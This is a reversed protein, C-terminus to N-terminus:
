MGEPKEPLHMWYPAVHLEWERDDGDETDWCQYYENYIQIRPEKFRKSWTLVRQGDEPQTEKINNWKTEMIKKNLKEYNV